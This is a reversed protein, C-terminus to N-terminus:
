KRLLHFELNVFMRMEQYIRKLIFLCIDFCVLPKIFESFCNPLKANPNKTGDEIHRQLVTCVSHVLYTPKNLGVDGDTLPTSTSSGVRKTVNTNHIKLNGYKPTQSSSARIKPIPGTAANIPTVKELDSNSLTSNPMLNQVIPPSSTITSPTLIPMPTITTVSTTQKFELKSM